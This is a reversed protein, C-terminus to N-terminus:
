RPERLLQPWNTILTLRTLTPAGSGAMLLFRGDPAVDYFMRSFGEPPRCEFLPTVGSVELRGETTRVAAAMMRGSSYFFLEKGDRSWRPYEGGSSSIQLQQGAGPFARVYIQREGSEDSMYTVWRGDPSFQGWREQYPSSVFPSPPASADLAAVWLDIGTQASIGEYLLYRGDPSVSTPAKPREDGLVPEDAGAGELRRRYLDLRGDKASNFLVENGAPLWVAVNERSTFTVRTQVGRTVDIVWLDSRGRDELKSVVAQRGNPSIALHRYGDPVDVLVQEEGRRTRWVLRDGSSTSGSDTSQYIVTGTQSVSFAGGYHIAINPMVPNALPVAEGSLTRTSADFPQAV